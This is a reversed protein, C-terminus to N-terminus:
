GEQKSQLAVENCVLNELYETKEDGEKRYTQVVATICLIDNEAVSNKVFEATRGFFMVEPYSFRNDKIICLTVKAFNPKNEPCYVNTVRGKLKACNVDPFYNSASPEIGFTNECNSKAFEIINGLILQQKVRNTDRRRFFSTSIEATIHVKDGKKYTEYIKKAQEGYWIVRPYNRMPTNGAPIVGNKSTAIKVAVYNDRYFIDVINGLLEVENINEM